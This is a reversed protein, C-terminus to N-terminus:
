SVKLIFDLAYCSVLDFEIPDYSKTEDETVKAVTDYIGPIQIKGNIDVLSGLVAILDTM